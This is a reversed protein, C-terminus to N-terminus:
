SGQGELFYVAQLQIEQSVRKVDDATVKDLADLWEADSLSAFPLFDFLITQELVAAPNDLSLLYQNRLMEKTQLLEDMTVEGLQIEALQQNILEMVRHRNKGDIGTQVNMTGRFTDVSSSAYYAMSEKERVNMFLKSHPFGGFIGNMVILPFYNEQQFYVNTHFALNLKSQIIDQTETKERVCNSAEQCYFVDSHLPERDSLNWEAICESVEQEEIDGIVAIEMNNSECMKYYYDILDKQSIDNILEVTGNSPTQQNQNGEFYLEQIQLAAYSQKDDNISEIYRILNTKERQFTDEDFQHNKINPNFLMEQLFSFAESLLNEKQPLYNGNVITMSATLFHYDGKKSVDLYFQAGYMEALKQSVKNQNDYKKSSMSLVSSLLARKAVTNYDLPEIFRVAIRVTKYKQTPVVHLGVGKTISQSM